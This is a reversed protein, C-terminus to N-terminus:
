IKLRYLSFTQGTPSNMNRDVFYLFGNRFQYNKIFDHGKLQILRKVRLSLPDIRLFSFSGNDKLPAYVFGSVPDTLVEGTWGKKTHFDIALTHSLSDNQDFFLVQNDAFDFIGIQDRVLCLPANLAELIQQDLWDKGVLDQFEALRDHIQNVTLKGFPDRNQSKLRLFYHIDYQSNLYNIKNSDALSFLLRKEGKNASFYHQILGRRSSYQFYAKGEWFTKCPGLLNLLYEKGQPYLLHMKEYDYYLQYASDASLLHLNGLCDEFFSEPVLPLREEWLLKGEPEQVRLFAKKRNNKMVALVILDDYFGYDIVSFTPDELIREVGEPRILVQDLAYEKPYLSILAPSSEVRIQLTHYRIDSVVLTLPFRVDSLKFNGEMDTTTGKETGKVIIQAFSIAEGSQQDTIKGSLSNQTLAHALSFFTFLFIFTKKM